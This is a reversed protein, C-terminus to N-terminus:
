PLGCSVASLGAAADSKRRYPRWFQSADLPDFGGQSKIDPPPILNTKSM